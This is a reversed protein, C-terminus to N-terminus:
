LPSSRNLKNVLSLALASDAIEIIRDLEELLKKWGDQQGVFEEAERKIHRTLSSVVRLEVDSLEGMEQEVVM